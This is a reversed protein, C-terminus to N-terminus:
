HNSCCRGINQKIESNGSYIVHNNNYRENARIIVDPPIVFDNPTWTLKFIYKHDDLEIKMSTISPSIAKLCPMFEDLTENTGNYFTEGIIFQGVEEIGAIFHDLKAKTLDDLKNYRNNFNDISDKSNMTM